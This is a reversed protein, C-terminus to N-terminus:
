NARLRYFASAASTVTDTFSIVGTAGAVQTDLDSWTAMADISVQITYSNGPIGFFTLVPDPGSADISGSVQGTANTATISVTGSAQEGCISTAATYTFSDNATLPGSYLVNTGSISVTAGNVSSGVSVLSVTSSETSTVNALLTAVPLKFSVGKAFSVNATGAVPTAYAAINTSTTSSCGNADTITVSYTGPATINISSTTQNGPSWLYSAGGTTATLTASSGSACIKSASATVSAASSVSQVKVDDLRWSSTTAKSFRIRLNATAPITGSCTTLVWVGSSAPQPVTLATFTTGDSSVEVVFPDGSAFADMRLGFTLRLGTGGVTNIGSIIFNRSGTTTTFFVNGSGSAGSYGSSPNTIRVDPLLTSSSTFTVPSGNQFGNTATYAALTATASPTGMNESLFTSSVIGFSNLSVTSSASTATAPSVCVDSSPTLITTVVDGNGLTTSTFTAATQGAVAVGNTRWVYTPSAGGNVPTATYTISSNACVPMTVNPAISVTPIVNANVTLTIGSSTASAANVCVDSSPTMVVTVVSGNLINNTAFTVSTAGSISVGNTKWQYTPSAGGNVPTATFTVTTNSCVTSSPSVAITVSPTLLPKVTMTIGSSTVTDTSRCPDTSTMTVTVVDGNILAATTFTSATQGTVNVSNTKWQYTPTGGNVPTATFTVSSGACNTSSPSAAISVSPTVSGTVTLTIQTADATASTVCTATSTMQCDITEGNAWGGTQTFTASSGSQATVGNTKWVYTPTGGNVPTATFTVASSNCITGSPSQAVTVSPTVTTSIVSSGSMTATCNGVTNTAVVTYTGATTQSGFSLVSGTGAVFSGVNSGGRQLQYNVGSQSSSLGITVGTATCGNGGTVSFTSPTTCTSTSTIALNDIGIKPRSGTPSTTAVGGNYYYFRIRATSSTNFSSPLAIASRSGSAAIGNTGSVLAATLETFVLGDTSTYVKISSVRNGSSNVINTYDFSLTGANRGTFDLLLDVAIAASNDTSGTALFILNTVTPNNTGREIGTSLTTPALFVTTALTINTGNPITGGSGTAVSAFPAAGTGSTFNDAWNSIVNFNEAYDGGSMVYPTAAFLSSGSILLMFLSALLKHSFKILNSNM